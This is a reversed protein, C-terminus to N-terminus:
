AACSPQGPGDISLKDGGDGTRSNCAACVDQALITHSLVRWSLEAGSVTSLQEYMTAAAYCDACTDAWAVVRRGICRIWDSLAKNLETSVETSLLQDHSTM